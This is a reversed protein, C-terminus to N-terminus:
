KKKGTKKNQKTKLGSWTNRISALILDIQNQM